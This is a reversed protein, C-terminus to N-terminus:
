GNYRCRQVGAPKDAINDIKWVRDSKKVTSAVITPLPKSKYTQIGRVEIVDQVKINLGQQRLSRQSGLYVSKQGTPTKLRVWTVVEKAALSHDKNNRDIAIVRGKATAITQPDVSPRAAVERSWCGGGKPLPAEARVAVPLWWGISAVLLIAIKIRNTNV